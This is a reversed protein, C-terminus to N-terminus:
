LIGDNAAYQYGAVTSPPKLGRQLDMWERVTDSFMQEKNSSIDARNMVEFSSLAEVMKQNAAKYNQKGKRTTKDGVEIGTKCDKSKRTNGVYYYIRVYYRNNKEYLSGRPEKM